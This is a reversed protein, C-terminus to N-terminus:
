RIFTNQPRINSNYENSTDRGRTAIARLYGQDVLYHSCEADQLTISHMDTDQGIGILAWPGTLGVKVDVLRTGKMEALFLDAGRLNAETLDANDLWAAHLDANQLNARKLNAQNLLTPHDFSGGITLLANELNAGQLNCGTLNAGRLDAGVLNAHWFNLGHLDALALEANPLNTLRNKSGPQNRTQLKDVLEQNTNIQKQHSARRTFRPSLQYTSHSTNSLM